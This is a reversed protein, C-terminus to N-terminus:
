LHFTGKQDGAFDLNQSDGQQFSGPFLTVHEVFTRGQIISFPTQVPGLAKVKSELLYLNM